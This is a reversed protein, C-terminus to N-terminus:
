LLLQCKACRYVGNGIHMLKHTCDEQVHWKAKEDAFRQAPDKVSHEFLYDFREELTMLKFDALKM